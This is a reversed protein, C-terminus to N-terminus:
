DLRGCIFQAVNDFRRPRDGDPYMAAMVARKAEEAREASLKAATVGALTSWASEFDPFEFSSSEREVRCDLGAAELERVFSSPDGLAGPGVGAVPPPESFRAVTEQFRIIDCEPARAWVSAVFRGEPKLVRAIERAARARDIVFMLSLSALVVDFSAADAPIAEAGGERFTVGAVGAAEARRKALALMAPSIDVGIVHGDPAVLGASRLAVSGTGTGVDLVRDGPHLEGRRIVGDVVAIFRRDIERVYVDSMRNWVDTQWAQPSAAEPKPM